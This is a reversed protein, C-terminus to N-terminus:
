SNVSPELVGLLKELVEQPHITKMANEYGEPVKNGYVSTPILPYAVRDAMLANELPQGFPYFGAYPHTVGWLTVVPIGYNAAMHANGSDMSLMVDLNSILQLEESLNLKGAMCLTSKYTAALRELVEVEKTGGGFLLIKYKDTDNITKIIEETSKLPYMKGEHAAFPAIGVWKKTGQQVLELVKESLQVRELPKAISLDIPFGLNAFVDAYRQHTSKLQGFVKNKPRTLAKKEKRGKEIQAFPISELAFYKKLVRSRLVNHLDAVADFQLLKLEKYLRWLGMLGKHRKKVDAEKVQVNRLGNFIPMFPKKTLVTLQIQPYKETLARIVPVAMAVDGMASLRILLIHTEKGKKDM